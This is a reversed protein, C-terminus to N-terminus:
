SGQEALRRRSTHGDPERSLTTTRNRNDRLRLRKRPTADFWWKAFDRVRRDGIRKRSRNVPTDGCRELLKPLPPEHGGFALVNMM